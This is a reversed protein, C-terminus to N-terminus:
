LEFCQFNFVAKLERLVNCQTTQIQYNATFLLSIYWDALGTQPM